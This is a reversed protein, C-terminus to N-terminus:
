SCVIPTNSCGCWCALRVGLFQYCEGTMRRVNRDDGGPLGHGCHVREEGIGEAVTIDDLALEAATPHGRDVEGPVHFVVALDGELEQPRLEGRYEAGLPEQLLDADAGPEVVGVDEREDIGARGVSEEKVNQREHAAPGPRGYARPAAYNDRGTDTAREDERGEGCHPM